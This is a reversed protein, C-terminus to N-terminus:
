EKALENVKKSISNLKRNLKQVEAKSALGFVGYLQDRGREVREGVDKRVTDARQFVSSERLDEEIRERRKRLETEVKKRRTDFRDRLEQLQDDLSRLTENFRDFGSARTQAM